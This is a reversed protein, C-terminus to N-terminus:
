PSCNAEQSRSDLASVVERRRVGVGFYVSRRVDGLALFEVGCKTYYDRLQDFDADNFGAGRELAIVTKEPLKAESSIYKQSKNLLVRAAAFNVGIKESHFKEAEKDNPPFTPPLKWQAGPGSVSGTAIDVSGVFVIGEEEYFSQLKLSVQPSAEGKEARQISKQALDALRGAETQPLRMLERAVRLCEAPVIVKM